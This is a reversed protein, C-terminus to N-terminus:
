LKWPNQPVVHHVLYVTKCETLAEVIEAVTILDALCDQLDLHVTPDFYRSVIIKFM